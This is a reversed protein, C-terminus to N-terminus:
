DQKYIEEVKKASLGYIKNKKKKKARAKELERV